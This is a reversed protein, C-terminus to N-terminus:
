LSMPSGAARAQNSFGVHVSHEADPHVTCVFLMHIHRIPDRLRRTALGKEDREQHLPAETIGVPTATLRIPGWTRVVRAGDKPLGGDSQAM